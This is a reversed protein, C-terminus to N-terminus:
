ASRTQGVCVLRLLIGHGFLGLALAPLEETQPYMMSALHIISDVHYKKIVSSIAAIDAVSGSVIKVKDHNIEPVLEDFLPTSRSRQFCIVDQGSALLDRVVYSGTFGTGGTVLYSM